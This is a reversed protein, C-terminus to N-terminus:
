LEDGKYGKKFYDEATLKCAEFECPTLGTGFWLIDSKLKEDLLSNNSNYFKLFTKVLALKQNKSDLIEKNEVSFPFICEANLVDNVSRTSICESTYTAYPDLKRIFNNEDLEIHVVREPVLLKQNFKREYKTKVNILDCDQEVYVFDTKKDYYSFESIQFMEMELENIVELPMELWGHAPDSYFKFSHEKPNM